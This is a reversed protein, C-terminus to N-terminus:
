EFILKRVHEDEADDSPLGEYILSNVLEEILARAEIFGERDRFDTGNWAKATLELGRRTFMGLLFM